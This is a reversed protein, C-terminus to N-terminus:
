LAPASGRSTHWLALVEVVMPEAIVRYYLYYHVRRVGTLRANRARAGITPQFSLLQIAREPEVAFGDSAKPRNVVWWEAAEQIVPPREPRHPCPSLRECDLSRSSSKRPTPQRM